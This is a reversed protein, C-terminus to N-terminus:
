YDDVRNPDMLGRKAVDRADVRARGAAYELDRLELSNFRVLTKGDYLLECWIPHGGESVILEFDGGRSRRM